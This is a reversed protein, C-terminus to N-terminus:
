YHFILVLALAILAPVAQFIFIKKSVSLGGVIGAVVVCILFFIQLPFALSASAVLSWILGAALFLNYFGQNVALIRTAAADQPAIKFLRMTSPRTWVVSELFFVYVHFLAILAVLVFILTSMPVAYRM